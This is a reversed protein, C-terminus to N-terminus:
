YMETLCLGLGGLHGGLSPAQGGEKKEKVHREKTVDYAVM